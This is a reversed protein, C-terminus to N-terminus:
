SIPSINIYDVLDPSWRCGLYVALIVLVITLLAYCMQGFLGDKKVYLQLAQQALDNVALASIYVLSGLVLLYSLKCIGAVSVDGNQDLVRLSKPM